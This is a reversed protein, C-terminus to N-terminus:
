QAVGKEPQEGDNLPLLEVREIDEFHGWFSSKEATGAYKEPTTSDILDYIFGTYGDCLHCDVHIELLTLKIVSVEGDRFHVKLKKGEMEPTLGHTDVFTTL